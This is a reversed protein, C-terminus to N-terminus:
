IKKSFSCQAKLNIQSIMVNKHLSVQGTWMDYNEKPFYKPRELIDKIFNYFKEM